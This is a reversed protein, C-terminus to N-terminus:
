PLDRVKLKAARGDPHHWVIGEWGHRSAARIANGPTDFVDDGLARLVSFNHGGHRILRHSQYGETNGNIKPGCLEYTAPDWPPQMDAPGVAESWFKVFPSQAIPEWGVRRGTLQDHDAERWGAPPTKGPKVERRAWWQGDGDLMTCTGDFKRTPAGEGAVVWECGPTVQSTDVKGTERDRVYLTSIKRM